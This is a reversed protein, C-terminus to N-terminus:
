SEGGEPLEWVWPGESLKRAKAGLEGKAREVTRESFGAAKARAKIDATPTPGEELITALWGRAEDRPKPAQPNVLEDATIDVPGTWQVRAYAGVSEFRFGLSEKDRDPALNCKTVAVIRHEQNDQDRGVTLVTRAAGDFAISGGGRHLASRGVSKSHHRVAIVLAGTEEALEALPDLVARVATDSNSDTRPGMFSSVPDIILLRVALRDVIARLWYVDRTLDVRRRGTESDRIHCLVHVRSVDAEAADLRPRIVSKRHEETVLLVDGAAKPPTSCFPFTSGRTVRRIVDTLVTSKGVDPDGQFLALTGLAFRPYWLWEIEEPEVQDLTILVTGGLPDLARALELAGQSTCVGPADVLDALHAVNWGDVTMAALRAIESGSECTGPLAAMAKFLARHSHARFAEPRVTAVLQARVDPYVLMSGLIARENSEQKPPKEAMM